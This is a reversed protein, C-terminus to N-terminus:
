AIVVSRRVSPVVIISAPKWAFCISVFTSRANSITTRISSSIAAAIALSTCANGAASRPPPECPASYLSSCLRFPHPGDIHISPDCRRMARVERQQAPSATTLRLSSARRRLYCSIDPNGMIRALRRAGAPRPFGSQRLSTGWHRDTHSNWEHQSLSPPMTRLLSPLKTRKQPWTSMAPRETLRKAVRRSNRPPLLFLEDDGDIDPRVPFVGDRACACRASLSSARVRWGKGITGHRTSGHLEWPHVRQQVRRREFQDTKPM